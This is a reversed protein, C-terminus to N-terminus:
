SFDRLQNKRVLRENLGDVVRVVIPRASAFISTASKTESRLVFWCRSIKLEDIRTCVRDDIHFPALSSWTLGSTAAAHRDV